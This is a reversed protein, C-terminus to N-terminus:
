GRGDDTGRRGRALGEKGGVGASTNIGVGANEKDEGGLDKDPLDRCRVVLEELPVDSKAGVVYAELILTTLGLNVDAGRSGQFDGESLSSANCSLLHSRVLLSAVPTVVTIIIM